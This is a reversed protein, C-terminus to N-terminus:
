QPTLGFRCFIQFALTAHPEIAHAADGISGHDVHLFEIRCGAMVRRSEQEVFVIYGADRVLTRLIDSMEAVPDVQM